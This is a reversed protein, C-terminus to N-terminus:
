SSHELERDVLASSLPMLTVLSAIAVVTVMVVVKPDEFSEGAVVLAAAINRQATGLAMVRRTDGGPGGALWGIAFGLAIFLLGALIARSGFLQVVKSFNAATILVLLLILSISSIQSLVPRVRAAIDGRRANLLLAAALPLLMLLVLSRAIKLPDVSVGHLLKPLVIPLYGVTVVMLLVMVGVAFAVHGKAREALKPLFPAGATCGLVLLGIAFQEDLRLVAGLAF